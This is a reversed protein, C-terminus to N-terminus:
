SKFNEFLTVSLLQYTELSTSWNLWLNQFFTAVFNKLNALYKDFNEWSHLPWSNKLEDIDTTYFILKIQVEYYASDNSNYFFSCFYHWLLDCGHESFYWIWLHPYPLFKWLIWFRANIGIIDLFNIISPLIYFYVPCCITFSSVFLFIFVRAWTITTIYFSIKFFIELTKFFFQFLFKSFKRLFFVMKNFYITVILFCNKFFSKAVSFFWSSFKLLSRKIKFFTSLLASIFVYFSSLYVNFMWYKNLFYCNLL